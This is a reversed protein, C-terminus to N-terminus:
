DLQFIAGDPDEHIIRFRNDKTIQTYLPYIKNVYGYNVKFGNKLVEYPNKFKGQSLNTYESYLDKSYYYMYIPDLVVFYYNKPNLGIFCPSDSWASHFITKGAPINKGMWKAMNEYHNNMITTSTIVKSYKDTKYIFFANSLLVIGCVFLFINQISQRKDKLYDSFFTAVFIIGFPYAFYWYALSFMSLFTFFSFVFFLVIVHFNIRIKKLLLLSFLFFLGVFLTFFDLIITRTDYPNWELGFQLDLNGLMTQIPVIIANLHLSIINNPFNPHLFTGIVIGLIVAIINKKSINKSYLYRSFEIIFVFVIAFPFSIHSLTYLICSIFVLFYKREIIFYLLLILITLAFTKPRLPNIYNLFLTSLLLPFLALIQIAKSVYQKLFSFYTFILLGAFFLVSIRAQNIISTKIYTFPIILIHFLLEKDSFSHTFTSFQAWLFKYQLGSDRIFYPIRIHYYGDVGYLTPNEWQFFYITFFVFSITIFILFNLTKNM